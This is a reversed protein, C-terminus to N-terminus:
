LVEYCQFDFEKLGGDKYIIMNFENGSETKYSYNYYGLAESYYPEDEPEGYAAVVQEVTSGWTIGNPLTLSPLEKEAFTGDCEFAWVKGDTVDCVGDTQNTIGIYVTTDFDDSELDISASLSDGKNLLYGSEYGYDDLDFSWGANSLDKYDFMMTYIHGDLEFQFDRWNNSVKANGSPKDAKSESKSGNKDSENKSSSVKSEVGSEEKGSVDYDYDYISIRKVGGDELIDLELFGNESFYSYIYNGLEENFFPEDEPEGYAEVVEEATSGWTIGGALVIDPLKIGDDTMGDLYLSTIKCETIDCANNGANFFDACLYFDGFEDNILGVSSKVDGSAVSMDEDDFTEPDISWGLKEMEKFDFPIKLSTGQIVIEKENWDASGTTGQKPKSEIKSATESSPDESNSSTEPKESSISSSEKSSTEGSGFEFSCGGLMGAGVTAALMVCLIRKYM